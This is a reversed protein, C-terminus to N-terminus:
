CIETIQNKRQDLSNELFKDDVNEYSVIILIERLILQQDKVINM